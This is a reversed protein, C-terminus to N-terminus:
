FIYKYHANFYIFSHIFAPLRRETTKTKTFGFCILEDTHLWVTLQIMELLKQKMSKGQRKILIIKRTKCFVPALGSGPRWLKTGPNVSRRGGAHDAM